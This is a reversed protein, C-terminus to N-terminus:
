SALLRRRTRSAVVIASGVGAATAAAAIGGIYAVNKGTLISRIASREGAEELTLLIDGLLGPLPEIVETRMARLARFLKRYQALEAQCRLCHEVHRQVAPDFAAASAAADSLLPAVDDCRLLTETKM